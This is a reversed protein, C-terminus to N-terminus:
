SLDKTKGLLKLGAACASPLQRKQRSNLTPINWVESNYYLITYFNLTLLQKLEKKNFYRKILRIGHLAIKSKNIAQSLQQDWKMM